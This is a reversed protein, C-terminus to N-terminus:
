PEAQYGVRHAWLICCGAAIWDGYRSRATRPDPSWRQGDPTVAVDNVSGDHGALTNLLEGGLLDWVRMTGDGSASIARRGDPTVAIANILSAHGAFVFRNKGSDLDWSRVSHDISGSVITRGDPTIALATIASTHGRLKYREEATNIDWVRLSGDGSGSVLRSGDPTLVLCSVYDTHGTLKSLLTEGPRPLSATLPRFWFGVMTKKVRQLLGQIEELDVGVLRGWLQSALQAPDKALVHAILLLTDKVLDAATDNTLYDYDVLLSTINSVELKREMWEFDLLLTKLLAILERKGRLSSEAGAAAALHLPTYLIAYTDDCETWQGGYADM